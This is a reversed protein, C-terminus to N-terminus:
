IDSWYKGGMKLAAPVTFTHKIGKVDTIDVPIEMLEKVKHALDERGIRYQFLISDHIQAMLKFDTPNPLAVEHFV